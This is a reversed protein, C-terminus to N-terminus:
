PTWSATCAIAAPRRGGRATTPRVLAHLREILREATSVAIREDAPNIEGAHWDAGITHLAQALTEYARRPSGDQVLPYAVDFAREADGRRLAADLQEYAAETNRRDRAHELSTAIAELLEQAHAIRLDADHDSRRLWREVSDRIPARCIENYQRAVSPDLELTTTRGAQRRELIGRTELRQAAM